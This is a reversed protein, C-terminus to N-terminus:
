YDERRSTNLVFNQFNKEAVEGAGKIDIDTEDEGSSKEEKCM